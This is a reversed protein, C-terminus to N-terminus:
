FGFGRFGGLSVGYECVRFVLVVGDVFVLFGLVVEFGFSIFM